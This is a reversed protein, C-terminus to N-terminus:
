ERTSEERRKEENARDFLQSLVLKVGTAPKLALRFLDSSKMQDDYLGLFDQDKDKMIIPLDLYKRASEILKLQAEKEADDNGGGKKWMDTNSKELALLEYMQVETLGFDHEDVSDAPATAFNTTRSTVHDMEQGMIPMERVSRRVDEEQTRNELEEKQLSDRLRPSTFEKDVKRQLPGVDNLFKLLDEPMEDTDNGKGQEKRQFEAQMADRPDPTDGMGRTFGVTANPDSFGHKNKKIQDRMEQEMKVRAKQLGSEFTGVLRRSVTQGM